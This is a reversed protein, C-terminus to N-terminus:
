NELCLASFGFSCMEGGNSVFSTFADVVNPGGWAPVLEFATATSSATTWDNCDETLNMAPSTMGGSTGLWARTDTGNLVFAVGTADTLPPALLSGAMFATPSTALQVGDLRVWTAGNLNFRSAPSASTTAIAALFNAANGLAAGQAEVQCLADAAAIGSSASFAGRTVFARRGVVPAVSVPAAFDTGFCMVQAGACSDAENGLFYVGESGVGGSGTGVSTTWDGCTLTPSEGDFYSFFNAVVGFENLVAPYWMVFNQLGAVTDTFPFGDPRIWGRATTGLAAYPTATSTGLFAVFKGPVGAAAASANCFANAGALGGFNGEHTASSLFVINQNTSTVRLTTAAAVTVSCTAGTCGNSWAVISGAAQTVTLVVTSGAGFSASSTCSAGTCSIGAPSSVISAPQTGIGHFNVTLTEPVAGFQANVTAAASLTVSCPATGTCGAGSWGTFTSTANPTATLTVVPNSTTRLFPATCTAGCNIAGTSDAVTGAGTGSKTVTLSLADEATGSLSAAPAGGNIQLTAAKSGHTTPQFRVAVSCSSMGALPNGSCGDTGLAFEGATTGTALALGAALTGSAIDGGNTVVFTQTPAAGADFLAVTPFAFSTPALTLSAPALATATLSATGTGGPNATVALSATKPGATVPAFTLTVTCTATTVLTKGSCADAVSFEAANAGGVSVALAGTTSMGSNSVTFTVPASRAGTATSPFTEAAPMVAVAGPTVVDAALTESASDIASDSVAISGALSGASTTDLAISLTCSLTPALTKGACNDLAISFGSGSTLRTALVASTASGSNTIQIQGNGVVQHQTVTGFDLSPQSVTLKAVPAPGAEAEVTGDNSADPGADVADVAADAADAADAPASEVAGDVVVDATRDPAGDMSPQPPPPANGAEMVSTDPKGGDTAVSGEPPGADEYVSQNDPLDEIGLIARCGVGTMASVALSVVALPRWWRRGGIRLPWTSDGDHRM